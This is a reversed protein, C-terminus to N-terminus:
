AYGVEMEQLTGSDTASGAAGKGHEFSTHAKTNKKKSPPYLWCRRHLGKKFHQALLAEVM